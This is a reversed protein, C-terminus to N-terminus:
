PQQKAIKLCTFVKEQYTEWVDFVCSAVARPSQLLETMIVRPPDAAPPGLLPADDFPTIVANANTRTHATRHRASWPIPRRPNSKFTTLNIRPLPGTIDLSHPRTVILSHPRTVVLSHPFPATINIRPLTLNARPGQGIIARPGQGFIARPGQGFIARPGQGLIARPGQGLIARPGQGLIARPGQRLIARPSQRLIPKFAHPNLKPIANPTKPPGSNAPSAYFKTRAARTPFIVPPQPGLLTPSQIRFLTPSAAATHDALRKPSSASAPNLRARKLPRPDIETLSQDNNESDLPRKLNNTKAMPSEKGCALRSESPNPALVKRARSPQARTICDSLQPAPELKTPDFQDTALSYIRCAKCTIKGDLLYKSVPVAFQESVSKSIWRAHRVILSRSLLKNLWPDHP